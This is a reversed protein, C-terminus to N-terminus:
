TLIDDLTADPKSSLIDSVRNYPIFVAKEASSTGVTYNQVPELKWENGDTKPSRERRGAWYSLAAVIAGVIIGEAMYRSDSAVAHNRGSHQAVFRWSDSGM